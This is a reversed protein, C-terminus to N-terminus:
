GSTLKRALAAPPLGALRTTERTLHAQDAYGAQYALTALDSTPRASLAALVQRFRLVRQLTKPGYGVAADFRRRLHRESVELAQGLSAVSVEGTALAATAAVVVPDPPCESVLQGCVRTIRDMAHGPTLDAPLERSLWPVVDALDVRQDRLEALPVGLAAGGAGPRFRVGALVTGAPTLAPAPGTDPGAVFAGLGQQWILDTCGDPLVDSFVGHPGPPVVRVWLCALAGRTGAPAPWERYGPAWRDAQM